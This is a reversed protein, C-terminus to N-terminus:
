TASEASMPNIYPAVGEFHRENATAVVCGANIAIAAIMTDIASRTKSAAKGEAMLRAWTMAAAEDFGLIRGAFLVEPGDPGRLWAELQLQKKGQPMEFIGRAIEALTISSIYLDADPQQALWGTLAKSPEAKVANSVINTDLLYRTM